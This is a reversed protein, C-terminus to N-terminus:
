HSLRLGPERLRHDLYDPVVRVIEVRSRELHARAARPFIKREGAVHARNRALLEVVQVPFQAIMRHHRHHQSDGMCLVALNAETKIGACAPIFTPLAVITLCRARASYADVQWAIRRNVSARPVVVGSSSHASSCGGM